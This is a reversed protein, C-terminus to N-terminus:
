SILNHIIRSIRRGFSKSNSKKQAKMEQVIDNDFGQFHVKPATPTRVSSSDNREPISDYESGMSSERSAMIRRATVVLKGNQVTKLIGKPPATKNGAGARFHAANNSGM